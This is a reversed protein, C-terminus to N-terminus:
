GGYEALYKMVHDVHPRVRDPVRGAEAVTKDSTRYGAVVLAPLDASLGRHKFQQDLWCVYNGMSVIADPASMYDRDGDNDGDQAWANFVAPTWMAIGYEDSRPRAAAADFGSEAKLMAALLAPTVEPEPCRRATGTIVERLAVPVDSGEPIAGTPAGPGGPGGLSTSGTVPPPASPSGGHGPLLTGALAAGAAALALALGGVVLPVTRGPRPRRGGSEAESRALLSVRRLLEAADLRGREAPDAALCATVLARWREPVGDDLRLPAAGRAYSQAALSRARATAGPFPHLGGSLVQHALVGFAWVDACPRLPVGRSGARQSWWEPPVHDLSGLPPVYAHTGELESTLGFDALRVAGGPMLLINAGKLDGHVWGHQHMHALGACIETLLREAEPAPSHPPTAAILDQLSREAREMVLVVAGDLRPDDPEDLTATRLTRVLGPHDAQRSFRVEREVLEAMTRRQGPTLLDSRLFKVAVPAGDALEEAAYVSGWSGSGIPGTIRTGAVLRGAPVDLPPRGPDNM